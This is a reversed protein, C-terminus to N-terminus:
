YKIKYSIGSPSALMDWVPSNCERNHKTRLSRASKPRDNTPLKCRTPMSWAIRHKYLETDALNKSLGFFLIWVQERTSRLNPVFIINSDAISDAAVCKKGCNGKKNPQGITVSSTPLLSSACPLPQHPPFTQQLHANQKQDSPDLHTSGMDDSM